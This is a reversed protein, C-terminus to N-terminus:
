RKLMPTRQPRLTLETPCVRPSTGVVYVVADAIDEPAIMKTRDLPADKDLLTTDVFGPCIACVKLGQERAEDFLAESFRLVGAKAASYAAIGGQGRVGSSSAINVVAAGPRRLLYPLAARTVYMTGLLNTAVVGALDEFQSDGVRLARGGGANNVLVDVGGFREVARHVLQAVATADTVDTPVALAEGGDATIESVAEDLEPGTRAALVVRYGEEALARAVARGIGRGAGTIIAVRDDQSM